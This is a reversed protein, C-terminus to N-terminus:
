GLHDSRQRAEDCLSELRLTNLMADVASDDRGRNELKCRYCADLPISGACMAWGRIWEDDAIFEVLNGAFDGCQVIQFPRGRMCNLEEVNQVWKAAGFGREDPTLRFLADGTEPVIAVFKTTEGALTEERLQATWGRV